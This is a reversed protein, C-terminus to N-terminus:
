RDPLELSRSDLSSGDFSVSGATFPQFLAKTGTQGNCPGGVIEYSVTYSTNSGIENAVGSLSLSDGTDDKAYIFFLKGAANNSDTGPHNPDIALSISSFCPNKIPVFRKLRTRPNRLVEGTTLTGSLAGYDGQSIALEVGLNTSPQNDPFLRGFYTGTIPPYWYAVFTGQDASTGNNCGGPTSGYTGTVTASTVLNGGRGKKTTEALTGIFSYIFSEGYSSSVAFQFAASSGNMVFGSSINEYRVTDCISTDYTSIDKGGCSTLFCDVATDFAVPESTATQAPQDGSTTQLHWRGAPVQARAYSTFALMLVAIAIGPKV